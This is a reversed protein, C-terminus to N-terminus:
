IVSDGLDSSPYPSYHRCIRAMKRMSHNLDPNGARWIESALNSTSALERNSTEM